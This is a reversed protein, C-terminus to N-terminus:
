ILRLRNIQSISRWRKWKESREETKFYLVKWHPSFSGWINREHSNFDPLHYSSHQLFYLSNSYAWINAIYPFKWLIYDSYSFSDHLCCIHTKCTCGLIWRRIFILHSFSQRDNSRSSYIGDCNCILTKWIGCLNGGAVLAMSMSDYIWLM